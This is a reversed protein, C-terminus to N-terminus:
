EMQQRTRVCVDLFQQGLPTLSIWGTEYRFQDRSKRDAQIERQWKTAVESSLLDELNTADIEAPFEIRIIELRSLNSIYTPTNQPDQCGAYYWYCVIHDSYRTSVRYQNEMRMERWDRLHAICTSLENLERYRAVMYRLIRAEGPSLQKVMEVFAPHASAARRGDMSTALLNAFLERLHPESGCYNMAELAPGAVVLKPEVRHQPPIGAVKPAISEAIWEEVKEFGWVLGGVPKLLARTARVAVAGVERGVPRLEEGFEEAAPGFAKSLVRGKASSPSKNRGKM